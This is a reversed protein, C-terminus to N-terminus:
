LLLYLGKVDLNGNELLDIVRIDDLVILGVLILPEYVQDHLQARATLEDLLKCLSLHFHALLSSSISNLFDNAGKNVTMFLVYDMSVYFRLIDHVVILIFNLKDIKAKGFLDDPVLLQM